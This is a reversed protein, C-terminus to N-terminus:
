LVEIGWALIPTSLIFFFPKLLSGLYLDKEGKRGDSCHGSNNEIVLGVRVLIIYTIKSEKKKRKSTYLSTPYMKSDPSRHDYEM